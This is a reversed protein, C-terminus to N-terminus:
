LLLVSRKVGFDGAVVLGRALNAKNQGFCADAARACQPLRLRLGTAAPRSRCLGVGAAKRVGLRFGGTL